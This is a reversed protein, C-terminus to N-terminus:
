LAVAAGVFPKSQCPYKKDITTDEKHRVAPFYAEGCDSM